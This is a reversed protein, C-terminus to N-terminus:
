STRLEYVGLCGEGKKPMSRVTLGGIAKRNAPPRCGIQLEIHPDHMNRGALDNFRFEDVIDQMTLRESHGNESMTVGLLAIYGSGGPQHAAVCAVDYGGRADSHWTGIAGPKQTHLRFAEDEGEGSYAAVQNILGARVRGASQAFVIPTGVVSRAVTMPDQYFQTSQVGQSIVYAGLARGLEAAAELDGNQLAQLQDTVTTIDTGPLMEGMVDVIVRAALQGVGKSIQLRKNTDAM